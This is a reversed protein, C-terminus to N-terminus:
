NQARNRLSAQTQYTQTRPGDLLTVTVTVIDVKSLEPTDLTLNGNGVTGDLEQWTTTGDRNIDNLWLSSSFELSFATVNAALIPRTVATGTEDNATLTLRENTSDYRYTIVEPDAAFEDITGNADFDVEFTMTFDGGPSTPLSVSRINEAQRLERTMREVAVRAEENINTLQESATTANRIAIIGQMLVTSLLVLLFIAVLIEIMTM